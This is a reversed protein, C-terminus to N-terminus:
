EALISVQVRMARMASAHSEREEILQRRIAHMKNMNENEQARLTSQCAALETTRQELLRELEHIRRNAAAAVNNM